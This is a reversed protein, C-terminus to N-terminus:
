AQNEFVYKFVYESIEIFNLGCSHEYKVCQEPTVDICLVAPCIDQLYEAMRENFDIRGDLEDVMNEVGAWKDSALLKEFYIQSKSNM